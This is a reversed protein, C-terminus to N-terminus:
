PRPCIGYLLSNFAERRSISRGYGGQLITCVESCIGMSKSYGKSQASVEMMDLLSSDFLAYAKSESKGDITKDSNVFWQMFRNALKSPFQEALGVIGQDDLVNALRKKGDTVTIKFQTTASGLQNGQGDRTGRNRV